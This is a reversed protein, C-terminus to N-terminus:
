TIVHSVPASTWRANASRTVRPTPSLRPLRPPAPRPSCPRPPPLVAPLSTLELQHLSWPFPGPTL